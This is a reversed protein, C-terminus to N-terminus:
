MICVRCIVDILGRTLALTVVGLGRGDCIFFVKYWWGRFFTENVVLVAGCASVGVVAGCGLAGVVLM